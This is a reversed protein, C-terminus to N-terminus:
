ENGALGFLYDIRNAECWAIPAERAFGSDARLIIWEHPWRARIQAIIRAEQM